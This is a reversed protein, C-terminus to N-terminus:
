QDVLARGARRGVAGGEEPLLGDDLRVLYDAGLGVDESHAGELGNQIDGEGRGWGLYSEGTKGVCVLGGGGLFVPLFGAEDVDALFDVLEGNALPGLRGAEAAGAGAEALEAVADLVHKGGEDLDGADHGLGLEEGQVLDVALLLEVGVDADGRGKDDDVPLPGLLFLCLRFFFWGFSPGPSTGTWLRLRKERKRRKGRRVAYTICRAPRKPIMRSRKPVIIYSPSEAYLLLIKKTKILMDVNNM